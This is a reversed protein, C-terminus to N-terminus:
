NLAKFKGKTIPADDDNDEHVNFPSYHFDQFEDHDDSFVTDPDDQRLPSIPTFDPGITVGSAVAGTDSVNVTIPPTSTTTTTTTISEIYFPTSLPVSVQPQSVGVSINLCPAITILTTTQTSTHNSSSPLTFVQFFDELLPVSTPMSFTVELNTQTASPESFM